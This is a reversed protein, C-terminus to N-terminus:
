AWSTRSKAIIAAAMEAIPTQSNAAGRLLVFDLNVSPRCPTPRQELDVLHAPVLRRALVM